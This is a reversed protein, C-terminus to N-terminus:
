GEIHYQRKKGDVAHVISQLVKYRGKDTAAVLFDIDYLKGSKDIFDACSVFYNGKKVVGDHLEKFKLKKIEGTQSDFVVYKGAIKNDIIHQNMSSKIDTRQQGKISPDNAAQVATVVLLLLLVFLSGIIKM